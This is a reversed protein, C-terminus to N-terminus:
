AFRPLLLVCVYLYSIVYLSSRKVGENGVRREESRRIVSAAAGQGTFTSIQLDDLKNHFVAINLLAHGDRFASKVGIEYSKSRFLTTYPFLKSIPTHRKM